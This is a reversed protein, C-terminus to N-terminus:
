KEKVTFGTELQSFTDRGLEKSTEMAFKIGVEVDTLCEEKTRGSGVIIGPANVAHGFYGSSNREIEVLVEM